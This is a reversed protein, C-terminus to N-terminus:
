NARSLAHSRGGSGGAGDAPAQTADLVQAPGATAPLEEGALLARFAPDIGGPVIVAPPGSRAIAAAADPFKAAFTAALPERTRSFDLHYRSWHDLALQRDRGM